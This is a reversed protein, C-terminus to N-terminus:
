IRFSFYSIVLTGNFASGGSNHVKIVTQGATSAVTGVTPAGGTNTGNQVSVFTIDNTLNRSNTLTLTYDAGAATTLSETTIVGSEKNLTAAGAVATASKSSIGGTGSRFPSADSSVSQPDAEFQVSAGQPTIGVIRAM